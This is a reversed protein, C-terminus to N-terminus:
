QNGMIKDSIDLTNDKWDICDPREDYNIGSRAYSYNSRIQFKDKYTEKYRVCGCISCIHKERLIRYPVFKKDKEWKHNM